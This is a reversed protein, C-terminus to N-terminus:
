NHKPEDEYIFNGFVKGIITSRNILFRIFPNFLSTSIVFIHNDQCIKKIETYTSLYFKEQPIYIGENKNRIHMEINEALTEIKIYSRQNQYKPFIHIKKVVSVLKMFNGPANKGIVMPPRLICVKFNQDNLHKIRQEADWKSKAYLSTPEPKTNININGVTKGYVGITSLFVFQQVHNRKAKEAIEFTLDSNIKQYLSPEVDKENRHVIGAVHVVVDIDSFDYNKWSDNRVSLTFVDYGNNLLYDKINQGIYSHEGTILVKNKYM